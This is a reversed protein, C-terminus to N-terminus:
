IWHAAIYSRFMEFLTVIGAFVLLIGGVIGRFKIQEARVEELIALMAAHAVKMDKQNDELVALRAIFDADNM